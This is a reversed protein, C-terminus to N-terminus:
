EPCSATASLDTGDQGQRLFAKRDAALPSPRTEVHGQTMGLKRLTRTQIRVWQRKLLRPSGINVLALLWGEPQPIIATAVHLHEIVARIGPARDNPLYTYLIVM